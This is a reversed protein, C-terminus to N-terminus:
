INKEEIWIECHDETVEVTEAWVGRSNGGPPEIWNAIHVLTFGEDTICETPVIRTQGNQYHVITRKNSM